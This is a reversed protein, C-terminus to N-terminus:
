RCVTEHISYRLETVKADNTGMTLSTSGQNDGHVFIFTVSERM